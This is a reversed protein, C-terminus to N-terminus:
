KKEYILHKYLVATEDAINSWSYSLSLDKAQKSKNKYFTDDSVFKEIGKALEGINGLEFLLGGRGNKTIERFVEIDSVVYPLGAAAAEITAIGFGEVASPLCFLHSEEMYKILDQRKLNKLFGVKNSIKLDAPTKKLKAEEPGSGIIILRIDYGKKFVISFAKILDDIRKYGVLRSICIITFHMNKAIVKEYEKQDVGCYIKSIKEHSVHNEKLKNVTSQSIAIFYDASRLFNFKELLSGFVGAIKSNKIWQGLFVDPYWFVVPIHNNISIQKAIVHAIFNSGDVIDPKFRSGTKIANLIFIIKSPIEFVSSTESYNLTPGIRYVRVGSIKEFKKSGKQRTCIVSVKHKKALYKAVFYTRAEVGGSFKLDKGTPFFETIFLVKM